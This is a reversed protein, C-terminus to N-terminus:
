STRPRSSVVIQTVESPFHRRIYSKLLPDELYQNGLDPEEQIFPGFKATSFPVSFSCEKEANIIFEQEADLATSKHRASTTQHIIRRLRRFHRGSNQVARNM